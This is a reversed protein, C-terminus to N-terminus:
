RLRLLKLLKGAAINLVHDRHFGGFVPPKRVGLNKLEHLIRRDKGVRLGTKFVKIAHEKKGALLYIRGLNLYHESERPNFKLAKECLSIGEKIRGSEKALSYGMISLMEPNDSSANSNNKTSM